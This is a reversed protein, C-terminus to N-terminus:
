PCSTRRWSLQMWLIWPTSRWRHYNWIMNERNPSSRHKIQDLMSRVQKNWWKHEELLEVGLSSVILTLLSLFLSFIRANFALVPKRCWVTEVLEEVVWNEGGTQPIELKRLADLFECLFYFFCWACMWMCMSSHICAHKPPLAIRMWCHVCERVCDTNRGSAASTIGRSGGHHRQLCEAIKLERKWGCEREEQCIVRELAWDVSRCLTKHMDQGDGRNGKWGRQKREKQSVVEGLGTVGWCGRRNRWSLM